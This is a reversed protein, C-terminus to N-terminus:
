ANFDPDNEAAEALKPYNNRITVQTVGAVDAIEVQTAKVNHYLCAAYIAGAAIGTPDRGSLFTDDTVNILEHATEAVDDTVRDRVTRDLQTV